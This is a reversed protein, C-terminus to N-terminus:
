KEKDSLMGFFITEIILGARAEAAKKMENLSATESLSPDPHSMLSLLMHAANEPNLGYQSRTRFTGEAMGKEFIGKVPDMYAEKWWVAIVPLHEKQLEHSIDHMMQSLNEPKHLLIFSVVHFLMQKTDDYRKVIRELGHKNTELETRIVELYLSQKNSFHHYLAPQTLGCEQAIRRTSVARYGYEMFLKRATHVIMRRTEPITM